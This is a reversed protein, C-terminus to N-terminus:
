KLRTAIASLNELNSMNIYSAIEYNNSFNIGFTTAVTLATITTVILLGQVGGLGQRVAEDSTPSYSYLAKDGTSFINARGSNDEQVFGSNKDFRQAHIVTLKNIIKTSHIFLMIIGM